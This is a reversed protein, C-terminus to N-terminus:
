STPGPESRPSRRSVYAQTRWLATARPFDLILKRLSGATTWDFISIACFYQTETGPGPKMPEAHDALRYPLDDHERTMTRQTKSEIQILVPHHTPHTVPQFTILRQSQSHSPTGHTRAYTHPPFLSLHIASKHLPLNRIHTSSRLCPSCVPIQGLQVQDPLTKRISLNLNRPTNHM